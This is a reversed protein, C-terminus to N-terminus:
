RDRLADAAETWGRTMLSARWAEGHTVAEWLRLNVSKVVERGWRMVLRCDNVDDGHAPGIECKAIIGSSNRLAWLVRGDTRM